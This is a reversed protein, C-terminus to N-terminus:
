EQEEGLRRELRELKSEKLGDVTDAGFMLRMQEAMITVDAIETIVNVPRGRKFQQLAAVLEGCEEICQDIQAIQGWKRLAETYLKEATM